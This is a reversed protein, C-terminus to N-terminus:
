CLEKFSPVRGARIAKQLGALRWNTLGVIRGDRSSSQEYLSGLGENLWAPCTPFNSAVFPHVIEHVLTGGGTAINMILAKHTHSYYGFPTSPEDGFIEKTHKEYSAKDRFLWIDLIDDPDKTFYLAKFQEVAWKVTQEARRRVIAASEDGVVVFPKQLVVTFGEAPVRKKLEAIHRAYDTDTFGKAPAPEAARQQEAAQRPEAAGAEASPQADTAGASMEAAHTDRTTEEPDDTGARNCQPLAVFLLLLALALPVRRRM